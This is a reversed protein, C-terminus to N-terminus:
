LWLLRLFKSVFFISFFIMSYQDLSKPAIHRWFLYLLRVLVSCFAHCSLFQNIWRPQICQFQQELFSCGFYQKDCKYVFQLFIFHSYQIYRLDVTRKILTNFRLDVNTSIPPKRRITKKLHFNIHVLISGNNCILETTLKSSSSLINLNLITFNKCKRCM